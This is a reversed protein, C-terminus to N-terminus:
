GVRAALHRRRRAAAAAPPGPRGRCPNVPAGPVMMKQFGDVIVQEGAKCAAM